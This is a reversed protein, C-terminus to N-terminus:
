RQRIPLVDSFADTLNWAYPKGNGHHVTRRQCRRRVIGRAHENAANTGIIEVLEGRDGVVDLLARETCKLPSLPDGDSAPKGILQRQTGAVVDRQDRRASGHRRPVNRRTDLRVLDRCHEADVHRFIIGHHDKQRKGLRLGIEIAGIVHARDFDEDFGAGSM